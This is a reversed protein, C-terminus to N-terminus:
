MGPPGGIFLAFANSGSSSEALDTANVGRVASNLFNRIGAKEKERGIVELGSDVASAEALTLKSITKRFIIKWNASADEDASSGNGNGKTKEFASRGATGRGLYKSYIMGRQMRNGSTGIPMMTKRHISWLRQCFYHVLPMGERSTEMHKPSRNSHLMVPGLLAGAGVEDIDDTEFLEELGDRAEREAKSNSGTMGPIDEPKYFWRVELRVQGYKQLGHGAETPRRDKMDKAEDEELGRYIAVVIASWWQVKYPHCEIGSSLNRKRKRVKTGLDWISMSPLRIGLM